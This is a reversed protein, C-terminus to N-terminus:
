AEHFMYQEGEKPTVAMAPDSDDSHASVTPLTTSSAMADDEGEKYRHLSREVFPSTTSFKDAVWIRLVELCANHGAKLNKELEANLELEWETKVEIDMRDSVVMMLLPVFQKRIERRISPVEIARARLDKTSRGQIIDALWNVVFSFKRLNSRCIEFRLLELLEAEQALRPCRVLVLEQVRGFMEDTNELGHAGFAYCNSCLDYGECTSCRFRDGVIPSVSCVACRTGQHTFKKEFNKMVVTKAVTAISGLFSKTLGGRSSGVETAAAPPAGGLFSNSLFGGRRSDEAGSGGTAAFSVNSFRRMLSPPTPGSISASDPSTDDDLPASTDAEPHSLFRAREPHLYRKTHLVLKSPVDNPNPGLFVHSSCEADAPSAGVYDEDRPELVLKVDTAVVPRQLNYYAVKVHHKTKLFPLIVDKLETVLEAPVNQLVMNTEMNLRANTGLLPRLIRSAGDRHNFPVKELFADLIAPDYPQTAPPIVDTHLKWKNSVIDDEDERYFQPQPMPPPTSPPTNNISENSARIEIHQAALQAELKSIKVQNEKLRTFQTAQESDLTTELEQIRVKQIKIEDDKMKLEQEKRDLDKVLMNNENRLAAIEADQAAKESKRASDSSDSGTSSRNATAIATNLSDLNRRRNKKNSAELTTVLSRLADTEESKFQIEQQLFGIQKQAADLKAVEVSLLENERFVYDFKRKWETAERKTKVYETELFALERLKGVLQEQILKNQEIVSQKRAYMDENSHVSQRHLLSPREDDM